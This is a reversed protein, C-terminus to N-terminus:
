SDSEGAIWTEAVKMQDTLLVMDAQYGAMISGLRDGLGLFEAPYRSAMRLSEELSLGVAEVCNVVAGIMTLDSGALTGDPTTVRGNERVLEVGFLEFDKLSSGVTHIADTVLMMRGSKKANIAVRLTSPHVHHTDVIIGCWSENHDLAAGVCGPERSTFPSMANFLHTFGTVGEALGAMVQEYTAATHGASVKVGAAVLRSVFGPPVQEPALTVMTVGRSADLSTLLSLADQEPLRIREEPHVGKRAVNLYPGELHVGLMGPVGEALALRSAVIAQEMVEREDSILTPLFGTTGYKRHARGIEEIAEPTPSDNFLVGGGGNVQTDIFGPVLLGGELRRVVLGVPIDAEPLVNEVVGNCVVVAHDAMIQDGTFIRSGALAYRKM